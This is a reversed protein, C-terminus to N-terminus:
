IVENGDSYDYYELNRAIMKIEHDNPDLGSDRLFDVKHRLKEHKRSKNNEKNWFIKYISM